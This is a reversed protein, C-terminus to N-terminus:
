HEVTHYYTGNLEFSADFWQSFCTKGITGDPNSRHGWFFLYKLQEGRDVLDKVDRINM